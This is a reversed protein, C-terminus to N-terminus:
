LDNITAVFNRAIRKVTSISYHYKDSLAEYTVGDLFKEKLMNRYVEKHEYEDILTRIESNKMTKMCKFRISM